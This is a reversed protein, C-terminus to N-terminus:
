GRNRGDKKRVGSQHDQLWAPTKKTEKIICIYSVALFVLSVSCIVVCFIHPLPKSLYYAILGKNAIFFSSKKFLRVKGTNVLYNREVVFVIRDEVSNVLRDCM